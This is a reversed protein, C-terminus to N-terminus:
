DIMSTTPFCLINFSERKLSVAPEDISTPTIQLLLSLSKMIVKYEYVIGVAILCKLTMLMVFNFNVAAVTQLRFISNPTPPDYFKVRPRARPSVRGAAAAGRRRSWLAEETTKVIGIDYDGTM